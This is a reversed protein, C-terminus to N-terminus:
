TDVHPDLVALAVDVIRRQEARARARLSEFAADVSIGEARALVGKAQEIVVRSTLAGQLQATVTEARSITRHQLIAITAVDALAQVVRADGAEFEVHTRGFLNLAGVAEQRLRMPIAHVAAFGAELAQPAFSPWRRTASALDANVVPRGTVFCDLCPGEHEQLQFLELARGADNSAAMFTLRGKRDALVLGVADAGSVEAARDTLSQLFDILDFGAVLSDAMEVFVEILRDTSLM